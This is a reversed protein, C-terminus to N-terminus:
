AAFYNTCADCGTKNGRGIVAPQIRSFGFSASMRAAFFYPKGNLMAWKTKPDFTFTRMGFQTSLTDVPHRHDGASVLVSGRAVLTPLRRDSGAVRGITGQRCGDGGSPSRGLRGTPRQCSRIRPLKHANFVSRGRQRHDGHRSSEEDAIRARSSVRVIHPTESLILEVSDYIGPIDRNKEGDRGDPMTPPVLNRYGGVRIALENTQGDGRLHKTVNFVVPTFCPLHEGIFDGNLFVGTGYCAKHIKLRALAPVAGDIQFTRRYWFM